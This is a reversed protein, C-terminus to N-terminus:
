TTRIGRLHPNEIDTWQGQYTRSSVEWRGALIMVVNPHDKAIDTKWLAPWQADAPVAVGCTWRIISAKRRFRPAARSGAALFGADFSEVDLESSTRSLWGM